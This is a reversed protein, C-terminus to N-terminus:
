AAPAPEELQAYYRAKAKAPSTGSRELLSRNNFWRGLLPRRTTEAKTAVARAWFSASLALCCHRRTASWGPRFDRLESHDVRGM